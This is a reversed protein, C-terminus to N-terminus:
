NTGQYEKQLIYEFYESTLKIFPIHRLIQIQSISPIKIINFLYYGSFHLLLLVELFRVESRVNGEYCGQDQNEEGPFELNFYIFVIFRYVTSICVM